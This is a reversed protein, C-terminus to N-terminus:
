NEELKVKIHTIYKKNLNLENQLNNTFHTFFFMALRSLTFSVFEIFYM